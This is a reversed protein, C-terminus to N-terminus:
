PLRFSGLALVGKWWGSEWSAVGAVGEMEGVGGWGPVTKDKVSVSTEVEERRRNM